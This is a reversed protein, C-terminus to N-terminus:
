HTCISMNDQNNYDRKNNKSVFIKMTIYGTNVLLVQNPLTM